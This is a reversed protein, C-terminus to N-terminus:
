KKAPKTRLKVRNLSLNHCFNLGFKFFFYLYFLQQMKKFKYLIMLQNKVRRNHKKFYHVTIVPAWLFIAM